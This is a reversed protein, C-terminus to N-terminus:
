RYEHDGDKKKDVIDGEAIDHKKFKYRGLSKQLLTEIDGYLVDWVFNHTLRQVKTLYGCLASGEKFIRAAKESRADYDDVSKFGTTVKGHTNDEMFKELDKLLASGSATQHEIQKLFDEDEKTMREYETVLTNMLVVSAAPTDISKGGDSMVVRYTLKESDCTFVAKAGNPKKSVTLDAAHLPKLIGEVDLKDLTKIDVKSLTDLARSRFTMVTKAQERFANLESVAQGPVGSLLVTNSFMDGSPSQGTEISQIYKKLKEIRFTNGSLHHRRMSLLRSLFDKIKAFIKKIGEWIRQVLTQGEAAETYYCMLDLVASSEFSVSGSVAVHLARTHQNLGVALEAIRQEILACEMSPLTTDYQKILANLVTM